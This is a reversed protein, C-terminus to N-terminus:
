QFKEPLPRLAKVLHTYKLCKITVEGTKTKMVKGHVGVIDGIDATKFLNYDKQNVYAMRKRENNTNIKKQNQRQELNLEEITKQYDKKNM